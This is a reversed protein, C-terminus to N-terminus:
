RPLQMRVQREQEPLQARLLRRNGLCLLRRHMEHAAPLRQPRAVAVRRCAAGLEAAHEVLEDLAHALQATLQEQGIIEIEVLDPVTQNKGHTNFISLLRIDEARGNMLVMDVTTGTLRTYKVLPPEGNAKTQGTYSKQHSEAFTWVVLQSHMMGPRVLVTVAGVLAVVIM